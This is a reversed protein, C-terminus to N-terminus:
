RLVELLYLRGLYAFDMYELGVREIFGTLEDEDRVLLVEGRLVSHQFGLPAGNLVHVDVPFRLYRTLEVSLSMEYDFIDTAFAPDLYVAVDVDHFPLGEAFSGHLYAFIIEARAELAKQLRCRVESIHVEAIGM